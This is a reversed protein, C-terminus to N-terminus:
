KRELKQLRQGTVEAVFLNGDPDFALMHPMQFQGPANGTGGWRQVVKGQEDLRLIKNARGDAVFLEGAPSLAMGYPAFGKWIELLEGDADFVQIRNNERDGVLVRGKADVVISHPLNFQGPAKGRRGWVALLAGNPSFKMVRSNGYGDSVYFEGRKGFAVDTPQNFQDEGDGPKGTGLALLLKGTRDYKLVRHGKMDTVWVNDDADIRLGHSSVIEGEGWSHVYRGQADLRIIPHKGRNFLFINGRSDVSVASCPGLQISAPLQLFGPVPKLTQPEGATAPRILLLLCLSSVAVAHYRTM